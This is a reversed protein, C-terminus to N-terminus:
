MTKLMEIHSQVVPVIGTAAAKLPAATGDAAYAQQVALAQNHSAKQQAVYAKDRAPGSESRLEAILENQTPTLKPPSAKVRSRAAAKKVDATSKTHHQIMLQAFRRINPDQTSQLVVESSTREYLDSAGAAAVYEQPTMPTIRGVQATAPGTLAITATAAVLLMRTMM